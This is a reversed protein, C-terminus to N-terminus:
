CDSRLFFYDAALSSDTVSMGERAAVVSKRYNKNEESMEEVAKDILSCILYNQTAVTM